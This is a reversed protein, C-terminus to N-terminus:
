SKHMAAPSSSAVTNLFNTLEPPVQGTTAILANVKRKTSFSHQAALELVAEDLAPSIASRIVSEFSSFQSPTAGLSMSVSKLSDLFQPVRNKSRMTFALVPDAGALLSIAEEYRKHIEADLPVVLNMHERFFQAEEESVHIRCKVERLVTEIGIVHHRIELLDSLARAILRKREARARLHAGIGSIVSGLVVGILPAIVQLAEM